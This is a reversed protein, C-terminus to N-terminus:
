LLVLPMATGDPDDSIRRMQSLKNLFVKDRHDRLIRDRARRMFQERGEAMLALADPDKTNFVGGDARPLGLARGEVPRYLGSASVM